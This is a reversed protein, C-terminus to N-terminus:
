AKQLKVEDRKKGNLLGLNKIESRAIKEKMVSVLWEKLFYKKHEEEM